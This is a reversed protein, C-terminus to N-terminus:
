ALFGSARLQDDTWGAAIYGEYTAGAYSAAGAPTLVKGVPQPPAAPPAVPAPAPAPAIPAPAPGAM